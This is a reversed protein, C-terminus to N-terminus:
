YGNNHDYYNVHENVHPRDTYGGDDHWGDTHEQGHVLPDECDGAQAPLTPGICAALVATAVAGVKFATRVGSTGAEVTFFDTVQRTISM